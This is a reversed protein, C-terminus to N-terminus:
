RGGRPHGAGRLGSLVQVVEGHSVDDDPLMEIVDASDVNAYESVGFLDFVLERMRPDQLAGQLLGLEILKFVVEQLLVKSQPATEGKEVRVDVNDQLDAGVFTTLESESTVALKERVLETFRPLNKMLGMAVLQLKRTESMEFSKRFLLRSLAHEDEAQENLFALGSYSPVGRPTEMWLSDSGALLDISM